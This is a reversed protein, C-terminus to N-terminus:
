SLRPRTRALIALLLFRARWAGAVGRLAAIRADRALKELNPAEPDMPADVYFFPLGHERARERVFAADAASEAGRLAHAVHVVAAAVPLEGRRRLRDISALLGVSDAGGSVGVVLRSGPRVAGARELQARVQRDVAECASM